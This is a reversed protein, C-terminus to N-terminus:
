FNMNNWGWSDLLEYKVYTNEPNVGLEEEYVACMARTLNELDASDAKGFIKVESYCIPMNNDGHFYLREEDRFNLMLWKESKGPIVSIAEGLKAKLSKEKEQTIKVNTITEIYPM